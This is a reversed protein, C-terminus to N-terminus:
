FVQKYVEKNGDISLEIRFFCLVAYFVLLTNWVYHQMKKEKGKFLGWCLLVYCDFIDNVEFQGNKFNLTMFWVYLLSAITYVM